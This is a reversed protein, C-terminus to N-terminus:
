KKKLKKIVLMIFFYTWVFLNETRISSDESEYPARCKIPPATFKRSYQNVPRSPRKLIRGIIAPHIKFFKTDYTPFQTMLENIENIDVSKEM